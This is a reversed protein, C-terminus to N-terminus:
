ENIGENLFPINRKRIIGGGICVGNEHYLVISQGSTIAKIKHDFKIYCQDDKSSLISCSHDIDRYRVKANCKFPINKQIDLNWYMNDAILEDSFLAPHDPGQAVYVINNDIDKNVVYWPQDFASQRAGIGLGKRQGVTFYMHGNHNGIEEGDVTIIKGINSKLFQSVFNNYKRDGIFCIGTSDKKSANIL